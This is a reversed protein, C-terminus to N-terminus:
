ARSGDEVGSQCRWAEQCPQLCGLMHRALRFFGSLVVHYAQQYFTQQARVDSGRCKHLMCASVVDSKEIVFSPLRERVLLTQKSRGNSLFARLTILVVPPLIM